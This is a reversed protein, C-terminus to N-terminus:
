LTLWGGAGGAQAVRGPFTLKKVREQGRTELPQAVRGDSFEVEFAAGGASNGDGLKGGLKGGAAV